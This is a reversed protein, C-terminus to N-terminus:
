EPTKRFFNKMLSRRLRGRNEKVYQRIGKYRNCTRCIAPIDGSRWRQRLQTLASGFWADRMSVRNFSEYALTNEIDRCTCVTIDGNECVVLKRYLEFCPDNSVPLAELFSEGRPLDRQSILGNWRDYGGELFYIYKEKMLSSLGIYEKTNYTTAIPQDTRLHLTIRVPEGLEKNTLLLKEFIATVQEYRDVNFLRKYMQPGGLCTSVAIRSLGSCLLPQILEDRLGILNTYFFINHITSKEKAYRVYTILNPDVLPDGVTPTFNLGGGGMEAYEDIARRVMDPPATARSRKMFRYACFSCRANCINTTALTLSPVRSEVHKLIYHEEAKSLPMSQLLRSFSNAAFVKLSSFRSM